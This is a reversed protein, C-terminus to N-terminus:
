NLSEMVVALTQWHQTALSPTVALLLGSAITTNVTTPTASGTGFPVSGGEATGAAVGVFPLAEINGACVATGSAGVTRFHVFMQAFWNTNTFVKAELPAAVSAGLSTGGTATGFIPTFTATQSGTIAQTQIGFATVKFMQGARISGGAIPTLNAADWLATISTGGTVDTQNAVPPDVLVERFYQRSALLTGDKLGQTIRQWESRERAALEIIEAPVQPPRDLLVADREFAALSM